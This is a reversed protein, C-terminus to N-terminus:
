ENRLKENPIAQVLRVYIVGCRIRNSCAARESNCGQFHTIIKYDHSM